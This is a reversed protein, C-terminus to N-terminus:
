AGRLQKLRDLVDWERCHEEVYAWDILPLRALGNLDVQDKSRFAILKLVILDEVTAVRAGRHDRARAIVNRQLDTKAVQFELVVSRNSTVFRVFDPGSPLEAGYQREISFGERELASTLRQLRERPALVTIDIDATFRPELWANVAHGGIIAYAVGEDELLRVVSRLDSV